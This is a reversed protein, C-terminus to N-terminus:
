NGVGFSTSLCINRGSKKSWFSFHVCFDGQHGRRLESFAEAHEPKTFCFVVFDLDDRRLSYTLPESSLSAASTHVVESNMLGRVEDAPPVVHCPWKRRLDARTTERERRSM